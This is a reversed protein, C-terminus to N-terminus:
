APEVAEGLVPSYAGGDETVAWGTKMTSGYCRQFILVEFTTLQTCVSEEALCWVSYLVDHQARLLSKLRGGWNEPSPVWLGVELNIAQGRNTQTFIRYQINQTTYICTSLPNDKKSIKLQSKEM